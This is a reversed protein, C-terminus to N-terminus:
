DPKCSTEQTVDLINQHKYKMLGSFFTCTIVSRLEHPLYFPSTNDGCINLFCIAKENAHKEREKLAEVVQEFCNEPIKKLSSCAIRMCDDPLGHAKYIPYHDIVFIVDADNAYGIEFSKKSTMPDVVLEYDGICITHFDHYYKREFNNLRFAHKSAISGHLLINIKKLPRSQM